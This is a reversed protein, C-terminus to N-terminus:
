DRGDKHTPVGLFKEIEVQHDGAPCSWAGALVKRDCGADFERFHAIKCAALRNRIARNLADLPPDRMDM